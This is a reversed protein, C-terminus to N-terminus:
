KRYRGVFGRGGGDGVFRIGIVEGDDVIWSLDYCARFDPPWFSCFRGDGDISWKGETPRGREVYTTAGSLEFTQVSGDEFLFAGALLATRIHETAVVVGDAAGIDNLTTM